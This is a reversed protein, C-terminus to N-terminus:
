KSFRFTLFSELKKMFNNNSEDLEHKPKLIVQSNCNYLKKAEELEM